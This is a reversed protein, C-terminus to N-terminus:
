FLTPIQEKERMLWNFKWKGNEIKANSILFARYFRSNSMRAINSYDGRELLLKAISEIAYDKARNPNSKEKFLFYRIGGVLIDALQILIRNPNNPHSEKRAIPIIKCKEDIKINQRLESNLRKIIRNYDLTRNYLGIYHEEGDIYFNKISVPENFFLGHLGSKIGIRMTTEIRTLEDLSQYMNKHNDEIRLVTLKACIPDELKAPHKKLSNLYYYIPRKNNQHLTAVAYSLWSNIINPIGHHIKKKKTLKKFSVDEASPCINNKITLLTNTIEKKREVPIFYFCHWYGNEKSEDHYIEYEKM